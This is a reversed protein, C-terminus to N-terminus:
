TTAHRSAAAAACDPDVDFGGVVGGPNVTEAPVAVLNVQVGVVEPVMVSVRRLPGADLRFLPM